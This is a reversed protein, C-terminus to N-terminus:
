EQVCECETIWWRDNRKIYCDETEEIEFYGKSVVDMLEEPIEEISTNKYFEVVRGLGKTSTDRIIINMNNQQKARAAHGGKDQLWVETQSRKVREIDNM